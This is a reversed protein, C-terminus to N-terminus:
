GIFACFGQLYKTLKKRITDDIMQGQADFVKMAQSVWLMDGFWIKMKLLRLVPLWATQSFATGFNGPTAGMLGVPRNHFVRPQDQVPRSLWDIANKFVGPISSNYEPTVLILGDSAAIKEKLQAVTDPIGQDSEVDANYLPIGKIFSIELKCGEPVVSAAANLLATNFSGERLSGSIGLISAM